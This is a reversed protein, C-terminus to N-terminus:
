PLSFISRYRQVKSSNLQIVEFELSLLRLYLNRLCFCFGCLCSRLVWFWVWSRMVSISGPPPLGARSERFWIWLRTGLIPGPLPLGGRSGQFWIWLRTVLIPGPLPLGGRSGWFGFGWRLGRTGACAVLALWRSPSATRLFLIPWFHVPPM